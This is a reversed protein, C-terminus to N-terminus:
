HFVEKFQSWVDTYLRVGQVHLIKNIDTVSLSGPQHTITEQAINRQNEQMELQEDLFEM